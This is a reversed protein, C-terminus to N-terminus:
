KKPVIKHKKELLKVIKKEKEKIAKVFFKDEKSFINLRDIELDIFDNTEQPMQMVELGTVIADLQKYQNAVKVNEIIKARTILNKM